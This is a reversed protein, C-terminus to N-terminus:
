NASHLFLFLMSLRTYLLETWHETWGPPVRLTNIVKELNAGNSDVALLMAATLIDTRIGAYCMRSTRYHYTRTLRQQKTTPQSSQASRRLFTSYVSPSWWVSWPKSSRPVLVVGLTGPTASTATKFGGKPNRRETWMTFLLVVWNPTHSKRASAPETM